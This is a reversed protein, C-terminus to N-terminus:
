FDLFDFITMQEGSEIVENQPTEKPCCPFFRYNAIDSLEFHTTGDEEIYVPKTNDHDLRWAEGTKVNQVWTDLM